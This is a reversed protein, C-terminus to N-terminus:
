SGMMGVVLLWDYSGFNPADTANALGDVFVLVVLM